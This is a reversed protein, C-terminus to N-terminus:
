SLECPPLRSCLVGDCTCCGKLLRRCPVWLEGQAVNQLEFYRVDDSILFGCSAVSPVIEDSSQAEEVGSELSCGFIRRIDIRGAGVGPLRVNKTTRLM